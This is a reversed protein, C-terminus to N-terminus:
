LITGRKVPLNLTAYVLLFYFVGRKKLQILSNTSSSSNPAKHGMSRIPLGVSLNPWEGWVNGGPKEGRGTVLSMARRRPPCGHGPVPPDDMRDVEADDGPHVRHQHQFPLAEDDDAAHQMSALVPFENREDAPAAMARGAALDELARCRELRFVWVATTLFVM